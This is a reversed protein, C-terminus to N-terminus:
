ALHAKLKQLVVNVDQLSSEGQDVEEARRMAEATWAADVEKSSPLSDYIANGIRERADAPLALVEELLLKQAATM